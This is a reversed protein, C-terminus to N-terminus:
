VETSINSIQLAIINKINKYPVSEFLNISYYTIYKRCLYSLNDFSNEIAITIKLNKLEEINESTIKM